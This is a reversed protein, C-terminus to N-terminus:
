TNLLEAITHPEDCTPCHGGPGLKRMFLGCECRQQGLQRTQCTDCEYVTIDRQSTAAPPIVLPPRQEAHQRRRHGAVRCRDSCYIRKGAPTFETGCVPCPMTVSDNSLPTINPSRLPGPLTPANRPLAM